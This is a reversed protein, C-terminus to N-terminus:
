KKVYNNLLKYAAIIEKIKKEADPNDKNIDPHYQKVLKKYNEKFLAFEPPYTVQLVVCAQQINKAEKSMINLAERQKFAEKEAHIDDFITKAFDFPDDFTFNSKSQYQQKSKGTSSWTPRHGVMDKELHEIIQESTMNECYNWRKNYEQIHELCFYQYQTLNQPNLPAKYYAPNQCAPRNCVYIKSSDQHNQNKHIRKEYKKEIASIDFISLDIEPM